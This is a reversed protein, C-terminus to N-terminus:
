EKEALSKLLKEQEEMLKLLRDLSSNPVAESETAAETKAEATVAAKEEKAPTEPIVASVTPKEQKPTADPKDPQRIERIQGVNKVEPEAAAPTTPAPAVRVRELKVTNDLKPSTREPVAKKYASVAKDTNHEATKISPKKLAKESNTKADFAVKASTIKNDFSRTGDEKGFIFDEITVPGNTNSGIKQPNLPSNEPAKYQELQKKFKDKRIDTKVRSKGVMLVVLEAVLMILLPVIVLIAMGRNSTMFSIVSGLGKHYSVAKGILKESDVNYVKTKETDYIGQYIVRETDPVIGSLRLVTTGHGGVDECLVADGINEASPSYNKAIVLSGNPVSSGMMDEDMIFCSYGFVSPTVDKNKFVLSTVVLGAIIVLILVIFVVWITKAPSRKTTVGM